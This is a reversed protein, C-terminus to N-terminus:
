LYRLVLRWLFKRFNVGIISLEPIPEQNLDAAGFDREARKFPVM